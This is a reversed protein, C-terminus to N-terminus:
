PTSSEALLLVGLKRCIFYMSIAEHTNFVQSEVTRLPDPIRIADNGHEHKAINMITVLNELQQILDNGLISRKKLDKVIQGLPKRHIGHIENEFMTKLIGEIHQCGYRITDRSRISTLLDVLAYQLPRHIQRENVPYHGTYTDATPVLLQNIGVGGIIDDILAIPERVSEICFRSSPRGEETGANSAIQAAIRAFSKLTDEDFLRESLVEIEIYNITTRRTLGNMRKM